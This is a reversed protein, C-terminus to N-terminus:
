RLLVIRYLLGVMVDVCCVVVCDDVSYVVCHLVDDYEVICQCANRWWVVVYWVIYSLIHGYVMVWCLLM